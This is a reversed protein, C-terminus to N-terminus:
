LQGLIFWADVHTDKGRIEATFAKQHVRILLKRLTLYCCAEPQSVAWRHCRRSRRSNVRDRGGHTQAHHMVQPRGGLARGAVM